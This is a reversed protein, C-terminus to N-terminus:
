ALRLKFPSGKSPPAGRRATLFEGCGAAVLTGWILARYDLSGAGQHFRRAERVGEATVPLVTLRQRLRDLANRRGPRSARAGAGALVELEFMNIETTALEEGRLSKLLAKARASDHLVELLVSTDLAKM